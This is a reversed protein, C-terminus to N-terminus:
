EAEGGDDRLTSRVVFLRVPEPFGKLTAEGQDAFTFTKGACLDRVVQPVLIQGPEARDCVRAALQVAAGFYDDDEAIPEGANLGIRVRVEGGALDRQIQLAAEVASAASGFAAFIGDGTHKVEEGQHAALAARVADNHGHLVEQANADGLSQTLATSSELDTFLLTRFGGPQEDAGSSPSGSPLFEVLADLVAATDGLEPVQSDGAFVRLQAGPIDAALERGLDLPAVCEDRHLVLTPCAVAGLLDKVDDHHSFQLADLYEEQTSHALWADAFRRAYDPYSWGIATASLSRVLSTWDSDSAFARPAIASPASLFDDSAACSCWLILHSIRAPNRAAYAIAMPGALMRAWLSVPAHGTAALVADVDRMCGDLSRDIDRARSLGVGRQEYQVVQWHQAIRDFWSRSEPQDLSLAWPVAQQIPLWLLPPGDGLTWYAISVGDASRCYQIPPADM